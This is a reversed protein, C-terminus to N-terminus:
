ETIFSSQVQTFQDISEFGQILQDSTSDPCEVHSPAAGVSPSVLKDAMNFPQMYNQLKDLSQCSFM